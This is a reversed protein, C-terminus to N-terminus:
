RSILGGALEAAAGEVIESPQNGAYSRVYLSKNASFEPYKERGQSKNFILSVRGEYNRAFSADRNLFAELKNWWLGQCNAVVFIEEAADFVTETFPTYNSGLDIVVADIGHASQSAEIFDQMEDPKIEPVETWLAFKNLFAVGRPDVNRVADITALVNRGDAIMSFIEYLGQTAGNPDNFFLETSNFYEFSVYLTKIGARTLALACGAAATSTGAGGQPSFFAYVIAPIGGSGDQRVNVKHSREKAYEIILSDVIGSVRQYKYMHLVKYEETKAAGFSPRGDPDFPLVSNNKDSDETLIVVLMGSFNVGSVDAEEDVLAIQYKARKTKKDGLNERLRDIDTFMATSLTDGTKPKARKIIDTLRKIYGADKGVLLVDINM